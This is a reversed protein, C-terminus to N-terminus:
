HAGEEPTRSTAADVTYAKVYSGKLISPLPQHVALSTPAKRTSSPILPYGKPGICAFAYANNITKYLGPFNEVYICEIYTYNNKGVKQIYVVKM